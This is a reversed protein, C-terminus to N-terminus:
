NGKLFRKMHKDQCKLDNCVVTLRGSGVPFEFISYIRNGIFGDAGMVEFRTDLPCYTCRLDTGKYHPCLKYQEHPPLSSDLVGCFDCIGGRVTPLKTAEPSGSDVRREVTRILRGGPPTIPSSLPQAPIAPVVPALDGEVGAEIIKKKRPM